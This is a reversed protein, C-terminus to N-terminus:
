ILWRITCEASGKFSCFVTSVYQKGYEQYIIGTRDSNVFFWCYSMVIAIGAMKSLQLLIM